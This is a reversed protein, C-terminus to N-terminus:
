LRDAINAVVKFIESVAHALFTCFDASFYLFDVLHFDLFNATHFVRRGFFIVVISLLFILHKGIMGFNIILVFIDNFSVNIVEHHLLVM